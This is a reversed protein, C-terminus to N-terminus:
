TNTEHRCGPASGTAAAIGLAVGSVDDADGAGAGVPSTAPPPSAGAPAGAFGAGTADFRESATGAAVAGGGSAAGATGGASSRFSRARRLVSREFYALGPTDTVIM